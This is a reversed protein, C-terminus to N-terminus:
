TALSGQKLEFNTVDGAAFVGPVARGHPDTVLFGHADCPLGEIAPGELVPLTVVREADLPLPWTAGPPVVFALSRLYGGEVDQVIGHLREQDTLSGTFAVAGTFPM